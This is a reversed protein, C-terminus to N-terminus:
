SDFSTSASLANCILEHLKDRKLGSFLSDILKEAKQSYRMAINIAMDVGGAKRVAYILEDSEHGHFFIDEALRTVASERSMALILPLTVVGQAADHKIPKQMNEANFGFDKCDDIIQFIMGLYWGILGIRGPKIDEGSVVAGILASVRFLEATKGSIIKLYQRPHLNINRSNAVENMEGFCIKFISDMYKNFLKFRIGPEQLRKDNEFAKAGTSLSACLLYDGTIVANKKGFMSQVSNIGRRTPSDDIIDDHVLTALHFIEVAAALYVADAPITLSDDAACLLLTLSRVGKGMSSTLHRTIPAAPGAAKSIAKKIIRETIIRAEALNLQEPLEMTLYDAM